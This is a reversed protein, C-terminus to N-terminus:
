LKSIGVVRPIDDLETTMAGCGRVNTLRRALLILAAVNWRWSLPLVGPGETKPRTQRFNMDRFVLYQEAYTKACM